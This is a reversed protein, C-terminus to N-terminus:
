VEEEKGERRRIRAYWLVAVAVLAYAIWSRRRRADAYIESASKISLGKPRGFWAMDLFGM